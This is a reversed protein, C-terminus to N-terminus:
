GAALHKRLMQGLTSELAMIWAPVKPADIIKWSDDFRKEMTFVSLRNDDDVVSVYYRLGSTSHLASFSFEYYQNRNDPILLNFDNM